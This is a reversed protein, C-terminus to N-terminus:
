WRCRNRQTESCEAANWQTGQAFLGRLVRRRTREEVADLLAYRSRRAQDFPDRLERGGRYWTRGKLEPQGGKVELVLLGRESHIVSGELNAV